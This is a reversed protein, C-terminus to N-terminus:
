KTSWVRDTVNSQLVLMRIGREVEMKREPTGLSIPSLGLERMSIQSKM